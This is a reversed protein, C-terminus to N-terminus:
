HGQHTRAHLLRVTRRELSAGAVHPDGLNCREVLTHRRFEITTGLADDGVQRFFQNRLPVVHGQEGAAVRDGAGIENGARLHREAQVVAHPVRQGVVDHHQFRDPLARVLEVEQM